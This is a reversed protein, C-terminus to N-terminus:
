AAAAKNKRAALIEAAVESTKTQPALSHLEETIQASNFMEGLEVTPCSNTRRHRHGGHHHTPTNNPSPTSRQATDIAVAFAAADIGRRLGLDENTATNQFRYRHFSSTVDTSSAHEDKIRGSKIHKSMLKEEVRASAASFKAYVTDLESEDENDSDSDEAFDDEDLILQSFWELASAEYSIPGNSSTENRLCCSSEIAHM